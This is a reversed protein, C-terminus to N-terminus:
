KKAMRSMLSNHVKRNGAMNTDSLLSFFLVMQYKKNKEDFRSFV